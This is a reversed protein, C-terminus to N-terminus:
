GQGGSCSYWGHRDFRLLFALMPPCPECLFKVLACTMTTVRGCQPSESFCVRSKSGRNGTRCCELHPTPLNYRFITSCMSWTWWCNSSAVARMMHTPLVVIQAFIFNDLAKVHITDQKTFKELVSSRKSVCSSMARLHQQFLQELIFAKPM